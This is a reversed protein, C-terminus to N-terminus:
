ALSIVTTEGCGPCDAVRTVNAGGVLVFDELDIRDGCAGCAVSGRHAIADPAAEDSAVARDTARRHHRVGYLDADARGILDDLTDGAIVQSCGASVAAGPILDGLTETVREIVSMAEQRSVGEMACVFEDGGYRVILDGGRLSVHLAHGTAALLKDGSLHGDRDNVVKLNDVDFFAICLPTQTEQARRVAAQLQQRGPQRQLAGTLEDRQTHRLFAAANRRDAEALRLQSAAAARDSSASSTM